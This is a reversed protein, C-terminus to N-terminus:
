IFVGVCVWAPSVVTAQQGVGTPVLVTYRMYHCLVCYQILGSSLGQQGQRGTCQTQLLPFVITSGRPHSASALSEAM